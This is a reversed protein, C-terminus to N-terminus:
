RALAGPGIMGRTEANLPTHLSVVDAQAFVEDLTGRGVYAPFDGDILYPDAAIVRKFVNRSVHAM